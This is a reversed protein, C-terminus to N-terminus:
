KSTTHEPTRAERKAESMRGGDVWGEGHAGDIAVSVLTTGSKMTWHPMGPSLASVATHCDFRMGSSGTSSVLARPVMVKAVLPALERVDWTNV